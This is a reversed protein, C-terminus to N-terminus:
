YGYGYRERERERKNKEYRYWCLLLSIILTIVYFGFSICLIILAAKAIADDKCNEQDAQRNLDSNSASQASVSSGM